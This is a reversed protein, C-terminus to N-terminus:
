KWIMPFLKLLIMSYFKGFESFGIGLCTYSAWPVGSYVPCSFLSGVVGRDAWAEQSSRYSIRQIQIISCWVHRHVEWETKIAM